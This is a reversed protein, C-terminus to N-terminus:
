IEEGLTGVKESSELIRLAWRAVESLNPHDLYPKIDEALEHLRENAAAIMANRKLKIGAARALPTARLQIQLQKSTTRLIWGLDEM